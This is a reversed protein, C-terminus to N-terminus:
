IHILSLWESSYTGGCKALFAPRQERALETIRSAERHATHDKWLWCQAALDSAFEPQLALARNHDDVPIPSSGTADVGIGVVRDPDFSANADRGRALVDRVTHELGALYDGPHQRAVNDDHEDLLVGQHGSPYEFVSTAVEAGDACRVLLARVSNTGYDLGITFADPTPM